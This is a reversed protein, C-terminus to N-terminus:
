VEGGIWKIKFAGHTTLMWKGNFVVAGTIEVDRIYLKKNSVYAAEIGNVRFSVKEATYFACNQAEDFKEYEVGDITVKTSTLGQGIAIGIIPVNNEDYDIFGRRIYGETSIKYESFGAAAEDLASLHSDYGYSEVVGQATTEIQSSINEKYTGWDNSIATYQSSLEQKMVDMESRVITATNNILARLENYSEALKPDNAPNQGSNSVSPAVASSVAAYGEPTLNNLAVNLNESLRFLFSYLQTIQQEPTGKLGPPTEIKISM